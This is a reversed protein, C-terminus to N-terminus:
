TIKKYEKRLIFLAGVLLVGCVITDTLSSTGTNYCYGVYAMEGVVAAALGYITQKSNFLMDEGGRFFYPRM